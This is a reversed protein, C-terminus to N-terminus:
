KGAWDPFINLDFVFSGILYVMVAVLIVGAINLAFGAKVMQPIKLRESAFVVTNPPTAAPLMFGMSASLTATIMLLLPNMGIAVAVSAMIPLIMEATATNSTLETLFNVVLAVSIILIIPAITAMGSFKYGIFESLGTVTFGKALAFGGGFLLIIGWPVKSFATVDLIANSTGTKAKAPIFFLLLAMGIGVMGDNFFHPNSFISSWGPIYLFGLNFDARFIWLLATVSFVVGIFKEEFSIRGLKKYEDIIFSKEIHLENDFRYFVKILLFAAFILMVISIPVSVLMWQGFGIEPADPFIIKLIRVFSLNPPTGIITAIGGITASYAISLMLTISFNQTRDKGFEDELKHVIALGIPLMMVATATNSIWMSLFATATMFGLVISTPSGGFSTIVKLAIRKHLGWREMAIALLFGGLFLFITSNSYAQAIDEGSVLNLVPFAIIPILSTAALPVAETIWLFAMLSAIAAMRSIQPNDPDLEIFFIFLIAAAVGGFIGVKQSTTM